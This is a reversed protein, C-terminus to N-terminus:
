GFRTIINVAHPARARRLIKSLDGLKQRAALLLRPDRLVELDRDRHDITADARHAQLDGLLVGVPRHPERGLAGRHLHRERKKLDREFLLRGLM